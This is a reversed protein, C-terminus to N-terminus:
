IGPTRRERQYQHKIYECLLICDSYFDEIEEPTYEKFPWGKDELQGTLSEDRISLAMMANNLAAFKKVRPEKLKKLASNARDRADDPLM